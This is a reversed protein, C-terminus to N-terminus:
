MEISDIVTVSRAKPSTQSHAPWDLMCNVTAADNSAAACMASDAVTSSPIRIAVTAIVAASTSLVVDRACGRHVRRHASCLDAHAFALGFANLGRGRGIRRM